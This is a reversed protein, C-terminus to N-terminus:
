VSCQWLATGKSCLNVRGEELEGSEKELEDTNVEGSDGKEEEQPREEEDEEIEEEEMPEVFGKEEGGAVPEIEERAEADQDVEEGAKMREEERGIAQELVADREGAVGDVALEASPVNETARADEETQHDM